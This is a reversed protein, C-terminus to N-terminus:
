FGMTARAADDADDSSEDCTSWDGKALPYEKPERQKKAKRGRKNAHDRLRMNRFCRVYRELPQSATGCIRVFSAMLAGTASPAAQEMLM